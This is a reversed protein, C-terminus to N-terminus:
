REPQEFFVLRLKGTPQLFPQTLIFSHCMYVSHAGSCHTLHCRGDRLMGKIDLCRGSFVVNCALACLVSSFMKHSM